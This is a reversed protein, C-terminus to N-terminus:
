KRVLIIPFHPQAVKLSESHPAVPETNPEGAEDVERSRQLWYVLESRPVTIDITLETFRAPVNWREIEGEEEYGRLVSKIKIMKDPDDLAIRGGPGQKVIVLWMIGERRCASVLQEPTLTLFDDDYM